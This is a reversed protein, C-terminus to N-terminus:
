QLSQVKDTISLGTWSAPLTMATGGSTIYRFGAYNANSSMELAVIVSSGYCGTASNIGSNTIAANALFGYLTGWTQGTYNYNDYSLIDMYIEIPQGSSTASLRLHHVYTPTILDSKLTCGITAGSTNSSFTAIYTPNSVTSVGNTFAYGNAKIVPTTYLYWRGPVNGIAEVAICYSMKRAQSFSYDSREYILYSTGSTEAFLTSYYFIADGMAIFGKQKANRLAEVQQTTITGSTGSSLTVIYPKTEQDIADIQAQLTDYQDDVYKKNAAHIENTPTDTLLRTGQYTALTGPQMDGSGYGVMTQAGAGNVAYVTGAQTSKDLKVDANWLGVYKGEAQILTAANMPGLDQWVATASTDGVQIYLNYPEATGVLYAKTLNGLSSPSPLEDTSGVIGVINVFGGVDGQPGTEGQPGQEGRPGQPGIDGQRGQPGRINGTYQWTTGDYQFVDGTAGNLAQDYKNVGATFTPNSNQSYWLSGRVGEVGQEGQPGRPGQITSPANLLGWDFWYGKISTDSSRSYIYLEYPPQEGVIYGDGYNGEYTNPNPLQASSALPAEANIIKIGLEAITGETRFHEIDDKNKLVQEQLNRYEKDGIRLM